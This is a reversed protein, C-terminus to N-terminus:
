QKIKSFINMFFSNYFLYIRFIVKMEKERIISFVSMKTAMIPIDIKNGLIKGKILLIKNNKLFM